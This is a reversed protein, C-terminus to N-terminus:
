YSIKPIHFSKFSLTSCYIFDLLYDEVKHKISTSFQLSKLCQDTVAFNLEEPLVIGKATIGRVYTCIYTTIAQQLSESFEPWLFYKSPLQEGKLFLAKQQCYQNAQLASVGGGGSKYWNQPCHYFCFYYVPPSFMSRNRIAACLHHVDSRANLPLVITSAWLQSHGSFFDLIIPGYHRKQLM